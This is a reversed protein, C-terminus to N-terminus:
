VYIEKRIANLHNYAIIDLTLTKVANASRKSMVDVSALLALSYTM